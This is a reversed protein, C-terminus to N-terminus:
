PIGSGRIMPGSLAYGVCQEKSCVGVNATRKIFIQNFSLLDNYEDVKPGFYDLFEGLKELFLPPLDWTVGGVNIYSLTLRAGCLQEFLDLVYERERFAYMFPGFAGLDLGVTGFSVLHSALRNLEAALVRVYEARPPVEIGALKEVAMSWAFNNNMASLYDLRDTYGIYQYYALNEAIKEKCRHLYGLPPVAELVMEGDPRLVIRLVGHRSPPAPDLNIRM